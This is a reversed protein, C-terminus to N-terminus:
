AAAADGTRSPFFLTQKAKVHRRPPPLADNSADTDVQMELYEVIKMAGASLTPAAGGPRWPVGKLPTIFQDYRPPRKNPQKLWDQIPLVLEALKEIIPRVAQPIEYSM